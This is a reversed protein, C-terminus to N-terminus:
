DGIGELLCFRDQTKLRVLADNASVFVPGGLERMTDSPSGVRGKVVAFRFQAFPRLAHRILSVIAYVPEPTVFLGSFEDGYNVELPVAMAAGYDRNCTEIASKLARIAAASADPSLKTSRKLDALLLWYTRNTEM